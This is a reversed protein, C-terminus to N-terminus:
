ALSKFFEMSKKELQYDIDTEFEKMKAFFSNLVGTKTEQLKKHLDIYKQQNTVSFDGNEDIPINIIVQSLYHETAKFRYDFGYKKKMDQLYYFIYEPLINKELIEIVKRSTNIFYDGKHLFVNTGATGDGDSAFSIHANEDSARIPQMEETAKFYAVPKRAATYVPIDSTNGTDLKSYQKKNLNLASTIFKFCEKDLISIEVCEVSTTIAEFEKQFVNKIEALYENFYDINDFFDEESVKRQLKVLGLDSLEDVSWFQETLWNQSSSFKEFDVVKIKSLSSNTYEKPSSKFYKYEKTIALLDNNEDALRDADLTEGISCAIAMFVPFDQTSLKNDKKKINLIYTKKDTAYFTKAPLSIIAYIYCKDIISEKLKQDTPRYFFGDPLIIFAEGGEALENVIKQVFLGEKGISSVPYHKDKLDEKSNIYEKYLRVGSSIYPPNSMILNYEGPQVLELSGIISKNTTKFIGGILESIKATLTPNEHLLETLTIMLNAKALVITMEDYDTGLYNINSHIEGNIFRFDEIDNSRRNLISETLFGGVGSAPDNIKSGRALNKVNAMEVIAKIVNRPTFFQALQKKGKTGKLFDEFLRSKFAPDINKLKGYENFSKLINFFLEDQNQEKKLSIGNIITTGDVAPFLQKIHARVNVMYYRLCHNKGKEFVTDFDVRNGNDDMDLINIDSLFKFIFLETFTMLCKKPDDGTAVFVAQWVRKALSSPSMMEESKLVSNNVDINKLLKNITKITESSTPDFYESFHMDNERKIYSFGRQINVSGDYYTHDCDEYSADCNIWHCSEGDTALGIRAGLMQAYNNCQELASLVKSATNFKEGRKYEIVCLVNIKSKNRRDCILADPAKIEYQGYDKDPIINFKKLNSFNTEGLLYYEYEGFKDGNKQYKKKIIEESM